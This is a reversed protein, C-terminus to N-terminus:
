LSLAPVAAVRDVARRAAVMGSSNILAAMLMSYHSCLFPSVFIPNALSTTTIPIPFSAFLGQLNYSYWTDPLVTFSYVHRRIRKPRPRHDTSLAFEGVGGCWAWVLFFESM